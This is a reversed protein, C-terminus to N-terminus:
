KYVCQPTSTHRSPIPSFYDTMVSTRTTEPYKVSTDSNIFLSSNKKNSKRKYQNRSRWPQIVVLQGEIINESIILHLIFIILVLPTKLISSIGTGFLYKQQRFYHYCCAALIKSLLNDRNHIRNYFHTELFCFYMEAILLRCFYFAPIHASTCCTATDPNM